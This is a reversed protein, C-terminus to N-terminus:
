ENLKVGPCDELVQHPWKKYHDWYPYTKCQEPRVPYITCREKEIDFLVCSQDGPINREKLSLKGYIERVYKESFDKPEMDLYDAINELEKVSLWVYGGVRCCKGGCTRCADPNFSYPFDTQNQMM